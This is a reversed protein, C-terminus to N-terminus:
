EGPVRWQKVATASAETPGSGIWRLRSMGIEADVSLLADLESRRKDTLLHALRDYTEREARARAAAVREALIVPGPRVVRSTRLHESALGFLLSPSDHEM